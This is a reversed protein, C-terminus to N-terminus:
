GVKIDNTGPLFAYQASVADDVAMEVIKGSARLFRSMALVSGIADGDCRAHTTVLIERSKGVAKLILDIEPCRRALGHPDHPM